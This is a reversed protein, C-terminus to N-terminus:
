RAAKAAALLAAERWREPEARVRVAIEDPFDKTLHCAALYEQFTRHPFSWVGVGRELLLGARDSLYRVLLAPNVEPNESIRMLGDVLDGQKIDAVGVLD